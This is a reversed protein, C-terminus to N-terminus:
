DLDIWYVYDAFGKDPNVDIERVDRGDFDEEDACRLKEPFCLIPNELVLDGDPPDTTDYMFFKRKIEGVNEFNHNRCEEPTAVKKPPNISPDTMKTQCEPDDSEEPKLSAQWGAEQRLCTDRVQIQMQPCHQMKDKLGQMTDDCDTGASGIEAFSSLKGTEDTIKEETFWNKKGIGEERVDPHKKLFDSTVLDGEKPTPKLEKLEEWFKDLGPQAWRLRPDQGIYASGVDTGEETKTDFKSVKEVQHKTLVSNCMRDRSSGKLVNFETCCEDLWQVKENQTFFPWAMCSQNNWGCGRACCGLTEAEVKRVVRDACSQEFPMFNEHVDEAVMKEINTLTTKVIDECEDKCVKQLLHHHSEGSGTVLPDLHGFGKAHEHKSLEAADHYWKDNEGSRGTLVERCLKQTLGLKHEVYKEFDQSVAQLEELQRMEEPELKTQAVSKIGGEVNDAIKHVIDSCFKLASAQVFVSRARSLEVPEICRCGSEFSNENPEFELDDDARCEESPSLGGHCRCWDGGDNSTSAGFIECPDHNDQAEGDEGSAQRAVGDVSLSVSPELGPRAATVAAPCFISIFSM